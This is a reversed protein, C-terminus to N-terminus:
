KVRRRERAVPRTNQPEPTPMKVRAGTVLVMRWLRPQLHTMLVNEASDPTPMRAPAVMTGTVVSCCCVLSTFGEDPDPSLM